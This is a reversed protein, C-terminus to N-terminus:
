GGTATLPEAPDREALAGWGRVADERGDDLSTRIAAM